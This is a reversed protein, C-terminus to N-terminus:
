MREKVMGASVAVCAFYVNRVGAERLTGAIGNITAGTTYIDDVVVVRKWKVGNQEIKFASKLNAAREAETLTKAARTQDIRSVWKGDVPMGLERGLVEALLGAQNYGRKREKDRHLPVPILVCEGLGKLWHGLHRAMERGYFDAYERRGSNKLRYLSQKVSKYVFVARGFDFDQKKGKCSDCIEANIPLPSGCKLCFPERIYVLTGQCDPCILSGFPVPKDCVPCRRPFVLDTIPNNRVTGLLSKWGPLIRRLNSVNTRYKM